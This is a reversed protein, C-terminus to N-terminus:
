KQKTTSTANVQGREQGGCRMSAKYLHRGEGWRNEMQIELYGQELLLKRLRPVDRMACGLAWRLAKSSYLRRPVLKRALRAAPVSGM